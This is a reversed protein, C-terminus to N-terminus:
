TLGPRPLPPTARGATIAGGPPRCAASCPAGRGGGGGSKLPFILNKGGKEEARPRPPLPQATGLLAGFAPAASTVRLASAGKAIASAAKTERATAGTLAGPNPTKKWSKPSFSRFQWLRCGCLGM